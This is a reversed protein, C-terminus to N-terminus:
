LRKVPRLLSRRGQERVIRLYRVVLAGFGTFLMILWSKSETRGGSRAPLNNGSPLSLAGTGPPLSAGTGALPEAHLDIDLAARHETPKSRRRHAQKKPKMQKM